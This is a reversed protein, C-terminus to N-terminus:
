DNELEEIIKDIDKLCDFYGLVYLFHGEDDYKAPHGTSLMERVKRLVDIIGSKNDGSNSWWADMVEKAQEQEKFM